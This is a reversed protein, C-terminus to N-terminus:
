EIGHHRGMRVPKTIKSEDIDIEGTLMKIVSSMTPRLKPDIQICLLAIKLYKCAEEVCLEKNLSIDILEVLKKQKYHEWTQLLFM